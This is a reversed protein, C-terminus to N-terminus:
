FPVDDDTAAQGHKKRHDLPHLALLNGWADNGPNEDQHHVEWGEPILQLTAAMWVLRAVAIGRRRGALHLRVFQRRDTRNSFPRLVRGRSSVAGTDLNVAFTGDRIADLIAEETVRPLPAPTDDRDTTTVAPPTWAPDLASVVAAVSPPKRRTTATTSM